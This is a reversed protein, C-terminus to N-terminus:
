VIFREQKLGHQMSGSSHASCNSLGPLDLLMRETSWGTQTSMLREPLCRKCVTAHATMISESASDPHAHPARPAHAFSHQELM